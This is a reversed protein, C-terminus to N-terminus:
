STLAAVLAGVVTSQIVADAVAASIAMRVNEGILADDVACKVRSEIDGDQLRDRRRSQTCEQRTIGRPGPRVDVPCGAIHAEIAVGDVVVARWPLAHDFRRGIGESNTKPTRSRAHARVEQGDLDRSWHM